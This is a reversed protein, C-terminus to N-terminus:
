GTLAVVYKCATGAACWIADATQQPRVPILLVTAVIAQLLTLRSTSQDTVRQLRCESSYEVGFYTYTSCYSACLAVTM